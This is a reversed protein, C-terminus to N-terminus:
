RVLQQTSGEKRKEMEFTSIAALHSEIIRMQEVLAWSRADKRSILTAVASKQVQEDCIIQDVIKNRNQQYEELVEGLMSMKETEKTLVRSSANAKQRQYADVHRLESELLGQMAKLVEQRRLEERLNKVQGLLRAQEDAEQELLVPDVALSQVEISRQVLGKWREEEEIIDRILNNRNENKQTNLESIQSEQMEQQARIERLLVERKADQQNRSAAELFYDKELAMRESSLLQQTKEEAQRKSSDLHQEVLRDLHSNQEHHLFDRTAAEEEEAPVAIEDVNLAGMLYNLIAKTGQECVRAPPEDMAAADVVIDALSDCTALSAPLTRLDANGDLLLVRLSALQRVEAVSSLRNHSVELIELKHLRSTAQPLRELLNHSLFLERLETLGSIEEPLSRLRNERLDLVRLLSLDGLQGGGSRLSSLQNRHLLLVQKRLVKCLVFVGSPCDKLHCESLDFM